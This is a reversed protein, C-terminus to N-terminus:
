SLAHLWTYCRFNRYKCLLFLYGPSKSLSVPRQLRTKRTMYEQVTKGSFALYAFRQNTTVKGWQQGKIRNEDKEFSSFTKRFVAFVLIYVYMYLIHMHLMYVYKYRKHVYMYLIYVYMYLIYVYMYLMYVYMYVIYVYMYLIHVYM